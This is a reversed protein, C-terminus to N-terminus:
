HCTKRVKGVKVIGIIEQCNECYYSKEYKKITLEIEKLIKKCYPCIKHYKDKMM